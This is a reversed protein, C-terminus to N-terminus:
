IPAEIVILAQKIKASIEDWSDSYVPTSIKVTSSCEDFSEVTFIVQDFDKDYAELKTPHMIITSKNSM